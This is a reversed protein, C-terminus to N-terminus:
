TNSRKSRQEADFLATVMQPELEYADLEGSKGAISAVTGDQIRITASEPSHYSQPGPKIEIGNTLLNYTGM